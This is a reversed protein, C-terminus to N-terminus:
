KVPWPVDLLFGNQDLFNSLFEPFDRLEQRYTLWKNKDEDSKHNYDITMYKDSNDLLTNRDVRIINLYEKKFSTIFEYKLPKDVVENEGILKTTKFKDYVDGPTELNVYIRYYDFGMRLVSLYILNEINM